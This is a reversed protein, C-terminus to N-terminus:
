ATLLYLGIWVIPIAPAFVPRILPVSNYGIMGKAATNVCVYMYILKMINKNCTLLLAKM